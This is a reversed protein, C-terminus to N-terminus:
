KKYLIFMKALPGTILKRDGDLQTLTTDTKIYKTTQNKNSLYLTDNAHISWKGTDEFQNHSSDVRNGEYVSNMIYSSDNNLQLSINIGECDACPLIGVYNETNVIPTQPAVTKNSSDTSATNGPTSNCAALLTFFSITFVLKMLEFQKTKRPM